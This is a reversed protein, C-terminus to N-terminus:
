RGLRAPDDKVQEPKPAPAAPQTTVPRLRAAEEATLLWIGSIEGATDLKYLVAAKPPMAAPMIILNQHNYIKAGPAMRFTNKGIALLPYQFATMQGFRAGSPLQRASWVQGPAAALVILAVALAILIQRAPRRFRLRLLPLM